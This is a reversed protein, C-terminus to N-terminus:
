SVALGRRRSTRGGIVELKRVLAQMQAVTFAIGIPNSCNAGATGASSGGARRCAAVRRSQRARLTRHRARRGLALVRAAHLRLHAARVAPEAAASRGVAAAASRRVADLRAWPQLLPLPRPPLGSREHRRSVRGVPTQRRHDVVVVPQQGRARGAPRVARVARGGPRMAYPQRKEEFVTRRLDAFWQKQFASAAMTATSSSTLWAQSGAAAFRRVGDRRATRSDAPTTAQYQDGRLCVHPIRRAKLVDRLAPYDWGSYRTTRPCRCSSPMSTASCARRGAACRTLLHARVSRTPEISTRSRLSRTTTSGCTMERHAAGGRASRPLSSPATCSSPRTCCRAMWPRELSCCAHAPSRHARRSGARLKAQWRWTAIPNWRGFARAIPLRRNRDRTSCAPSARGPAQGSCPRCEGAHDGPPSRRCFADPWFGLGLADLLARTRAVDHNRVDAGRSQLLDFLVVPALAIAM